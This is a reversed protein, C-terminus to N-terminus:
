KKKKRADAKRKKEEEEKIDEEEQKKRAQEMEAKKKKEEEKRKEEDYKAGTGRTKATEALKKLKEKDVKVEKVPEPEDKFDAKLKENTDLFMEWAKQRIKSVENFKFPASIEIYKKYFKLKGSGKSNKFDTMFDENDGIKNIVEQLYDLVDDNDKLSISWGGVSMNTPENQLVEKM